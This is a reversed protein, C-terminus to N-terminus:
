PEPDCPVSWGCPEGGGGAISCSMWAACSGPGGGNCQCSANYTVQVCGHYISCTVCRPATCQARASSDGFATLVALTLIALGVSRLGRPRLSM